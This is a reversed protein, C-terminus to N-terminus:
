KGQVSEIVKHLFPQLYAAIKLGMVGAFMAILDGLKWYWVAVFAAVLVIYRVAAYLISKGSRRGQAMADVTDLIVVAMNVAMGMALAIGIWLGITYAIKDGAFWLGVAQALLGYAAIGFLLGPLAQNIRRLM